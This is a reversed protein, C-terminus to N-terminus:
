HPAPPPNVNGGDLVVRWIGDDDLRWVTFYKGSREVGDQRKLLWTGYTYGLRGDVEGVVPQWSLAVQHALIESWTKEWDDLTTQFPAGPPMTVVSAAVFERFGAAGREAVARAFASDRDMLVRPSISPSKACASGLLLTLLLARM